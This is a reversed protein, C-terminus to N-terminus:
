IVGINSAARVVNEVNFLNAIEPKELVKSHGPDYIVWCKSPSKWDSEFIRYGINGLHVDALLTKASHYVQEITEAIYYTPQISYMKTCLEWAQDFYLQKKWQSKMKAFKRSIDIFDILLKEGIREERREHEDLEIKMSTRPAINERLIVWMDLQKSRWKYDVPLKHVAYCTALGDLEDSLKKDMLMKWMPGETPDVSVKVVRTPDSTAFVVGWHGHGLVDGLTIGYVGEVQGLFPKVKKLISQPSPM